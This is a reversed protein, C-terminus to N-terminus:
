FSTGRRSSQGKRPTQEIAKIKTDIIDKQAQNQYFIISRYQSGRDPGQGNVQEINQSGFYVDM